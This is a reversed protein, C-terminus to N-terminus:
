AEVMHGLAPSVMGMGPVMLPTALAQQHQHQQQLQHHHQQHQQHQQQHQQPALRLYRNRVANISRGALTETILLWKFGHAQVGKLVAEDESATWMDGRKNTVSVASKASKGDNTEAEDGMDAAGKSKRQSELPPPLAPHFWLPTWASHSYGLPPQPAPPAPPALSRTHSSRPPSVQIRIYRNRVADDSRGPLQAAIHSWKNGVERVTQLITADEHRTWGQKLTVPASSRSRKGLQQKNSTCLPDSALLAGYAHQQSWVGPMLATQGMAAALGAAGGPVTHISQAPARSLAAVSFNPTQRPLLAQARGLAASNLSSLAAAASSDVDRRWAEM